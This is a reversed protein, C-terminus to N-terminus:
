IYGLQKLRGLDAETQQVETESSVSKKYEVAPVDFHDSEDVGEIGEEIQEQWCPRKEDLRYRFGGGITDWEFKENGVYLCRIMRNWYRFEGKEFKRYNRPDGTGSLGITEVPVGNIRDRENFSRDKAIDKILAPISLHSYLNSVTNPYGKPPNVIELPVHTIGESVSGTHHILGDEAPYGLNNGHDATVIVTTERKSESQVSDILQGVHRDMHDIAAGYLARYNRFYEETGKKDKNIEWNHLSNSCWSNPVSYLSQDYRFNNKFPSHGDMLNIFLFIPEEHPTTLRLADKTIPRAGDDFLDPVPYESIDVDLENWLVNLLSRTPHKHSLCARFLASKKRLGSKTTQENFTYPSLGEPFVSGHSVYDHFEDFFMDFRFSSNVYPNASLGIKQYGDLEDIFTEGKLDAFTVDKAFSDAHVEHQHPLLGTLMSAHSPVSWSSAARCQSFSVDSREQIQPAYQEFYDKRVSDLVIFIVNRGNM